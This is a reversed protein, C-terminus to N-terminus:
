NKKYPQNAHSMRDGQFIVAEGDATFFFGPKYEFLKLGGSRDLYLYGNKIKVSAKVTGGCVTCLYEGAFDQWEKKNPGAEEDPSDNFPIFELGSTNLIRVGTPKGKEDLIFTYKGGGSTFETPSHANLKEDTTGSVRYLGDDKIKFAVLSGRPKYTGVLRQLLKIDLTIIPKDTFKGPERQPLPGYKVTIM